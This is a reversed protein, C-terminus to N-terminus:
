GTRSVKNARRIFLVLENVKKELDLLKWNSTRSTAAKAFKLKDVKEVVGGLKKRYALANVFQDDKFAAGVADKYTEIAVVDRTEDDLYNEIEKGKTVWAFGAAKEIEQIVRRKTENLRDNQKRRDSDIVIAPFRNIPLLAVFDDVEMEDASLHSLLRGGYFMISYHIGEVLEPAKQGLWHNVYLRDTPGEVWILCNSQLLDSPRYGLEHCIQRREGKDLSRVFETSGNRLKVSYIAAPVSDMVHASHTTIFYQNSTEKWIFEMFKRQLEPHLHSEPEEICVVSNEVVIVRAAMMIIEHIGTGLAEVPLVRNDMTVNVTSKDHPIDIKVDSRDLVDNVFRQMANFRARYEQKDWHPYSLAALEDIIADHGAPQGYEAQFEELRSGIRRLTPITIHQIPRVQSRAFVNLVDVFWDKFSGGRMKTLHAWISHLELHQDRRSFPEAMSDTLAVTHNGGAISIPLWISQDQKNAGPLQFLMVQLQEALDRRPHTLEALVDIRLDFLIWQAGNSKGGSRPQDTATRKAPTGELFPALQRAIFRLANSKGANNAGIFLNIKELPGIM